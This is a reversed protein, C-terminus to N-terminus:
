PGERGTVPIAKSKKVCDVPHNRSLLVFLFFIDYWYTGQPGETFTAAIRIEGEM